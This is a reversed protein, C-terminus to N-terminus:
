GTSKHVTEEVLALGHLLRQLPHSFRILQNSDDAKNGNSAVHHTRQIDYLSDNIERDTILIVCKSGDLYFPGLLTSSNHPYHVFDSCFRPTIGIVRAERTLDRYIEEDGRKTEEGRRPITVLWVTDNL